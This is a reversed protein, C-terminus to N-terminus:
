DTRHASLFAHAYIHICKIFFYNRNTYISRQRYRSYMCSSSYWPRPAISIKPSLWYKGSYRRRHRRRHRRRRSAYIVVLYRTCSSNKDYIFLYIFLSFIDLRLIVRALARTTREGYILFREVWSGFEKVTYIVYFDHKISEGRYTNYFVSTYM